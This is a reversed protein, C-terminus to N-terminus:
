KSGTHPCRLFDFFAFLEEVRNQIPTGSICWRYHGTLARVAKSIKGDPNKIQQAEDLVIRRFRIKHLPGANNTFHEKWWANMASETTLSKPPDDDPYSRHVEQYTTVICDYGRLDSIIDTSELKSRADWRLIRPLSKDECHKRFEAIWQPVLAPTVVILTTRAQETRAVDKDDLINTIMQITKGFGMEDAVIGGHPRTTSNERDRMWGAGLLQHHFLSSSMGKLQWGGLGNSRMNKSCFKRTAEIIANRDANASSGPAKAGPISAILEKLALDKNKSTFTPISGQGENAQADRVPDSTWLSGVNLMVPGHKKKKKKKKGKKGSKSIRDSATKSSRMRGSDSPRARGRKKPKDLGTGKPIAARIEDAYLDQRKRGRGKSSKSKKTRVLAEYNGNEEDDDDRSSRKARGSGTPRDPLFLSDPDDDDDNVTDDMAFKNANATALAKRLKELRCKEAREIKTWEVDDQMTAKGKTKKTAYARKQRKFTEAAEKTEDDSITGVTAMWSDDEDVNSDIGDPADSAYNNTKDFVELAATQQRRWAELPVRPDFLGPDGDSANNGPPNRNKKPTSVLMRQKSLMSELSPALEEDEETNSHHDDHAAVAQSHNTAEESFDFAATGPSVILIQEAQDVTGTEGARFMDPSKPLSVEESSGNQVKDSQADVSFNDHFRDFDEEFAANTQLDEFLDMAPHANSNDVDNSLDSLDIEDNMIADDYHPESKVPSKTVEEHAGESETDSIRIYEDVEIYPRNNAM